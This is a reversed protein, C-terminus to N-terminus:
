TLRYIELYPGTRRRSFLEKSRFPLAVNAWEDATYTRSTESYPSFSAVLEAQSRLEKMFFGDEGPYRYRVFYAAGAALLAAPDRDVVPSALLFPAREQGAQKLYYVRYTKKGKQAELILKIKENKLLAHPDAAAISGAKGSVQDLTQRLRPSFFPHDLTIGSGEPLNDEIWRAALTRTDQRLLLHDLHVVKLLSPAVATAALVAGIVVRVGKYRYMRLCEAILFAGSLCLFPVIPLAYREYPQSFRAIMIYYVVPFVALWRLNPRKIWLTVLGAVGFITAVEGHGEYLSYQIHHFFLTSGEAKAQTLLETIFFRSDILSFPNLVAYFGIMVLAAQFVLATKQKWEGGPRMFIALAVPLAIPAAIYKFAVAAGGWAAARWLRKESGGDSFVSLDLVTMLMCFIMPIDAYIYHSDRVHMFSFAFLGAAGLAVPQGVAREAIKYLAWVSATGLVAGLLVRGILYFPTPDAFFSLAFAERSVGQFLALAAYYIGYAAFILYSALPPIKFFHPNLDGSAYALAHNVVIPEDQHFLGPLGFNIGILRATFAAALIAYLLTRTKM